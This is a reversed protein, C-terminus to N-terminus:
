FPAALNVDRVVADTTDLLRHSLVFGNATRTWPADLTWPAQYHNQPEERLVEGISAKRLRYLASIVWELQELAPEAAERYREGRQREEDMDSAGILEDFRKPRM